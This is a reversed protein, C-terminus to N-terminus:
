QVVPFLLSALLQNNILQRKVSLLQLLQRSTDKRTIIRQSPHAVSPILATM